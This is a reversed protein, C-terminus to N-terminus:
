LPPRHEGVVQQSQFTKAPFALIRERGAFMADHKVEFIVAGAHRLAARPNQRNVALLDGPLADRVRNRGEHRNVLKKIDSDIGARAHIVIIVLGREAEGALEVLQGDLQFWLLQRIGFPLLRGLHHGFRVVLPSTLLWYDTILLDTFSKSLKPFVLWDFFIFS